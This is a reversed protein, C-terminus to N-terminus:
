DVFKKKFLTIKTEMSEVKNLISSIFYDALKEDNGKCSSRLGIYDKSISNLDEKIKLKMLETKLSM